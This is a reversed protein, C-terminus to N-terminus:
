INGLALIVKQTIKEGMENVYTENGIVNGQVTVNVNINRSNSISKKSLSNPIIKTGNPLSVIEGRGGENIRTAGGKFYASGTANGFLGKVGKYIDGVVPVSEIKDDIEGLKERIYDFVGSVREKVTDFAGVIADRIGGFVGKINEWLNEATQKIGEFFGLFNGKIIEIDAM